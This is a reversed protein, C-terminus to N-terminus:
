VRRATHSRAGAGYLRWEDEDRTKLCHRASQIGTECSYVRPMRFGKGYLGANTSRLRSLATLSRLVPITRVTAAFVLSPNTPDM